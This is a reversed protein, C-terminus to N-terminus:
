DKKLPGRLDDNTRILIQCDDEDMYYMEFSNNLEPYFANISIEIVKIGEGEKIKIFKNKGSYSVKYIM